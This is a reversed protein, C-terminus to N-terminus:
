FGTDIPAFTRSFPGNSEIFELQLGYDFLRYACQVKKDDIRNGTLGYDAFIGIAVEKQTARFIWAM